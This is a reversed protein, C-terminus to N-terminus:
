DQNLVSQILSDLQGRKEGSTDDVPKQSATRKEPTKKSTTTNRGKSSTESPVRLSEANLSGAYTRLQEIKTSVYNGVGGYERGLPYAGLLVLSVGFIIIMFREFLSGGTGKKAM